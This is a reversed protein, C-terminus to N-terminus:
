GPRIVRGHCCLGIGPEGFLRGELGRRVVVGGVALGRGVQLDLHREQARDQNVVADELLDAVEQLRLMEEVRAVPADVVGNAAHRLAASLRARRGEPVMELLLVPQGIDAPRAVQGFQRRAGDADDVRDGEPLRDVVQMQAAREDGDAALDDVLGIVAVEVEGRGAPDLLGLVAQELKGRGPGFLGAEPGKTRVRSDAM